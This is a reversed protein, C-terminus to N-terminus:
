GFRCWWEQVTEFGHEDKEIGKLLFAQSTIALIEPEHLQALCNNISSNVARLLAIKAPFGKEDPMSIIGLDGSLAESDLIRQRPLRRGSQRLKVVRSRM